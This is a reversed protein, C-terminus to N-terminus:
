ASARSWSKGAVTVWSPSAAIRWRRVTDMDVVSESSDRIEAVLRGVRPKIADIVSRLMRMRKNSEQIKRTYVGSQVTRKTGILGIHSGKFQQTVLEVMPDIVNIVHHLNCADIM